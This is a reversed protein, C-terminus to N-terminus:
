KVYDARLKRGIDYLAKLEGELKAPGLCFGSQLAKAQEENIALAATVGKYYPEDYGSYFAGTLCCQKGVGPLKNTYYVGSTIKFGQRVRVDLQERCGLEVLNLDLM